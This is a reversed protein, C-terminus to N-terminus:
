LISTAHTSVSSLLRQAGPAGLELNLRVFGVAHASTNFSHTPPAVGLLYAIDGGGAGSPVFVAGEDLARANLDAFREPVIDLQAASGLSGLCRVYSSLAPVLASSGASWVEIARETSQGIAALLAAAELPSREQFARVAAVFESTRVSKGSFWVSVSFASSLSPLSRVESPRKFAFVGGYVSAAIDVGSGGGQVQAHAKYATTFLESSSLERTTLLSAVVAAASSGLGLKAGSASTFSTVDLEPFPGVGLAAEVEAFLTTPTLVNTDAIADCSVAAVLAPYGELVAYAGALVM